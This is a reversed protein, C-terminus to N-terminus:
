DMRSEALTLYRDVVEPPYHRITWDVMRLAMSAWYPRLEEATLRADLEADLREALDPRDPPIDFRLTVLDFRRDGRGVGDWDIIGTIVRGLGTTDPGVLVNQRHFDCHVLDDGSMTPATARGVERVWDLLRVTRPSHGALPEHLCFGPGSRRLYLEVPPVDRREALLGAFRDHCALMATLLTADLEAPVSGPLREQVLAVADPLPVVLQYEPVPLGHARAVALIEASRQVAEAHRTGPCWTLVAPRGDPWRVYAAGVEGGPCPGLYTFEVGTAATIRALLAPADLRVAREGSM